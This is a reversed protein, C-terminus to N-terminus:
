SLLERAIKLWLVAITNYITQEVSTPSTRREVGGMGAEKM